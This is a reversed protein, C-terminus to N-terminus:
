IEGEQGLIYSVEVSGGIQAPLALTEGPALRRVNKYEGEVPVTYIEIVDHPLLILWVESVQAEAYLQVKMDRDYHISSGVVEIITIIDDPAPRTSSYFDSRPRLLAVDPEPQSNNTLQIPNQVWVIASDGVKRALLMTLRAVCAAHQPGIEGELVVEGSIVIEGRILEIREDEDFVGADIMREYEEITFLRRKLQMHEIGM